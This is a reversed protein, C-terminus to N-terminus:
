IKSNNEESKKEMIEKELKIPKEEECLQKHPNNAIIGFSKGLSIKLIKEKKNEM